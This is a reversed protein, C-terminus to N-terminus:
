VLFQEALEANGALASNWSSRAEEHKGLIMLAHGLNIWAQRFEPRIALARRYYGVADKARGLKQLLLGTNYLLEPTPEAAEMLQTHLTLAQRYDQYEIALDAMSRLAAVSKPDLALVQRFAERALEPSGMKWHAFGINLYVEPTQSRLAACKEFAEIAGAFDGSELRIHGLRFWADEAGPDITVVRTYLKAAQPLDHRSELLLALNWLAIRQGPDIALVKEYAAQAEEWQELEQLVAGLSLRAQCSAPDLQAARSYAEAAEQYRGLKQLAVGQNFHVAFHDPASQLL